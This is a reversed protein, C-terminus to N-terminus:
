HVSKSHLSVCGPDKSFQVPVLYWPYGDERRTEDGAEAKPGTKDSSTLQPGPKLLVCWSM